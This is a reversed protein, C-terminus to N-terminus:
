NIELQKKLVTIFVKLPASLMRGNLTQIQIRRDNVEPEQLNIFHLADNLQRNIISATGAITLVGAYQVFRFLTEFQNSELIPRVEIQRNSCAIDFLQRVTNDTGPLAIPHNKLQALSISKRKALDHDARMVVVVKAPQSHHIYIGKETTRSYTLGIDAEGNELLKSIDAPHVVQLSFTVGSHEKYFDALALPILNIAFGNTCALRIHGKHLGHLADISSIIEETDLRARRAYSALIIGAPNPRMGRPLRDFLASGLTEELESIQRSVASVTVNLRLAAKTVSGEEVVQLFYRLATCQLFQTKNM